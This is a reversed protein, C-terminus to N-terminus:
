SKENGRPLSYFHGVRSGDPPRVGPGQRAGVKGVDDMALDAKRPGFRGADDLPDEVM